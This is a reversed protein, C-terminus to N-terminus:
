RKGKGKKKKNKKQNPRKSSSLSLTAERPNVNLSLNTIDEICCTIDNVEIEDGDAFGLDALSKKKTANSLFIRSGNHKIRVDSITYGAHTSLLDNLNILSNVCVERRETTSGDNFSVTICPEAKAVTKQLQNIDSIELFTAMTQPSDTAVLVLSLLPMHEEYESDHEKHKKVFEAISEFSKVRCQLLLGVALICVKAAHYDQAADMAKAALAFVKAHLSSLQLVNANLNSDKKWLDVLSTLTLEKEGDHFKILNKKLICWNDNASSDNKEAADDEEYWLNSSSREGFAFDNPASAHSSKKQKQLHLPKTVKKSRM